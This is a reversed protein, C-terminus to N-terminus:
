WLVQLMFNDILFEGFDIIFSNNSTQLLLVRLNEFGFQLFIRILEVYKGDCDVIFEQRFDFFLDNEVLSLNLRFFCLLSVNSIHFVIQSVHSLLNWKQGVYLNHFSFDLTNPINVLNERFNRM